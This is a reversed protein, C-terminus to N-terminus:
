MVVLDYWETFYKASLNYNTEKVKKMVKRVEKKKAKISIQEFKFIYLLDIVFKHLDCIGWIGEECIARINNLSYNM